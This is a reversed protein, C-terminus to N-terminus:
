QEDDSPKQEQILKINWYEEGWQFETPLSAHKFLTSLQRGLVHKSNGGKLDLKLPVRKFHDEKDTRLFFELDHKQPEVLESKEGSKVSSLVGMLVQLNENNKDQLEPFKGFFDPHVKMQFQRLVDKLYPAKPSPNKKYGSSDDKKNLKKGMSMPVSTHLDRITRGGGATSIGMAFRREMLSGGPRIASSLGLKGGWRMVKASYRQMTFCANAIQRFQM